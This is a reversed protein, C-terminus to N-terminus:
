LRASTGGWAEPAVDDISESFTWVHGSLDEASYQREGYPYDAPPELIRAGRRRAREYHRELDEIRVMVSDRTRSRGQSAQSEEAQETIAIAGEGVNMQARHTGITWRLTFGFAQGLWDIAEEVDPYGLVPIVHSRPM